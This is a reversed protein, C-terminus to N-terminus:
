IIKDRFVKQGDALFGDEVRKTKLRPPEIRCFEMSAKMKAEPSTYAQQFKARQELTEAWEPDRKMYDEVINSYGGELAVYAAARLSVDDNLKLSNRYHKEVAERGAGQLKEYHDRFKDPASTKTLQHQFQQSINALETERRQRIDSLAENAKHCYSNVIQRYEQINMENRNVAQKAKEFDGNAKERLRTKENTFQQLRDKVEM